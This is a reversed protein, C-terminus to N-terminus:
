KTEWQSDPNTEDTIVMFLNLAADFLLSYKSTLTSLARHHQHTSVM